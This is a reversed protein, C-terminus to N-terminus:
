GPLRQVSVVELGMASCLALLDCLDSQGGLEGFMITQPPVPRVDMTGFAGQARESLRGNVRVEYRATAM